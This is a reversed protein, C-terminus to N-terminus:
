PPCHPPRPLFSLRPQLLTRIWKTEKIWEYNNQNKTISHTIPQNISHTISQNISEGINPLRIRFHVVAFLSLTFRRRLSWRRGRLTLDEVLGGGNKQPIKRRFDGLTFHFSYTTQKEVAWDILRNIRCQRLQDGPSARSGNRRKKMWTHLCNGPNRLTAMASGRGSRRNKRRPHAVNSGSTFVFSIQQFKLSM